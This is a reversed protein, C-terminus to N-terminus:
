PKFVGVIFDEPVFGDYRSDRSDCVNDGVFFYYDEEFTYVQGSFELAPRGTEYEIVKSYLALTREDLAVRMGRAPVVM